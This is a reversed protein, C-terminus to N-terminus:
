SSHKLILNTKEQKVCANHQQMLLAYGLGLVLSIVFIAM